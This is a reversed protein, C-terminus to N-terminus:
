LCVESPELHFLSKEHFLQIRMTFVIDFDVKQHFALIFLILIRDNEVYQNPKLDSATIPPQSERFSKNEQFLLRMLM